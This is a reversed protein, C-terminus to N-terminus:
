IMGYDMDKLYNYIFDYIIDIYEGNYIFDFLEGMNGKFERNLWKKILEDEGMCLITEIDM